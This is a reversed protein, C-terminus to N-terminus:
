DPSRGRKITGLHAVYFDKSYRYGRHIYDQQIEVSHYGQNHLRLATSRARRSTKVYLANVVPYCPDWSHVYYWLNRHRKM